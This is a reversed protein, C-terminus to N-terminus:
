WLAKGTTQFLNENPVWGTKGTVTKVQSWGSDVKRVTLSAGEFVEFLTANEPGPGTKVEAKKATVTVRATLVDFTKIVALSAFLSALILVTLTVKPLSPMPLSDRLAVRRLGLFRLLTWIGCLLLLGTLALIQDLTLLNLYGHLLDENTGESAKDIKTRAFKLATAADSLSPNLELAKRWMGMALGVDSKQFHALGLNYLIQASEPNRGLAESLQTVAEDFQGEQYKKLGLAFAPDLDNDQAFCLSVTVFLAIKLFRLPM